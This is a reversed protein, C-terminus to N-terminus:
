YHFIMMKKTYFIREFLIIHLLFLKQLGKVKQNYFFDIYEIQPFYM